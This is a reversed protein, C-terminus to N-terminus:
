IIPIIQEDFSLYEISTTCSGPSKWTSCEVQVFSAADLHGIMRGQVSSLVLTGGTAFYCDPPPAGTDVVLSVCTACTDIDLEEGQLVYTGTVIGNSFVGREPMLQIGVSVLEM